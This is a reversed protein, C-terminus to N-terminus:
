TVYLEFVILCFDYFYLVACCIVLKGLIAPCHALLRLETGDSCYLKRHGFRLLGLPSYKKPNDSRVEEAVEYLLYLINDENNFATTTSTTLKLTSTIPM